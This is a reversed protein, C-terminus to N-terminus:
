PTAESGLKGNSGPPREYISVIPVGQYTLVHSPIFTGFANWIWAENRIMHLEHHMLAFSAQKLTGIRIDPRLLQEQQFMRISPRATDHFEVQGGKPVRANLWPAVGATTYGWFQRTMGLTAAGPAGGILPVYSALGFPHSAITQHLPPVLLVGMVAVKALVRGQSHLLAAVRDALRAAAVGALLAIFPFAPMWHKTGGFVPVTPLSILAIPFVASIFLLLDLGQESPHDERPTRQRHRIRLVSGALALAIIVTPITFATMVLPLLVPTPAQIINEGFWATNYHVHDSHFGLYGQIRHVTDYWLWPWHCLFIPPALVAGFLFAHPKPAPIGPTQQRRYRWHIWVAIYHGGLVLPLFFANLKVCLAIGYAIGTAIGYKWSSLSRWYLYTVLLWMATIPVDFCALHAHYFVRPMLAFALAGFVGAVRGLAVSGFLFILYVALAGAVMGPFRFSTAPSLLDLRQHLVRNSFGFLVKMLAPHESNYRWNRKITNEKIAQQPDELLIDFWRQYSRAATFYFGEDRAFGVDRATGLLVALYVLAIALGILHDMSRFQQGRGM